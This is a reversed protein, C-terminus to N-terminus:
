NGEKNVCLVSYVENVSTGTGHQLVSDSLTLPSDSQIEKQRLNGGRVFTM